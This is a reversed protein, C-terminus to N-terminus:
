ARRPKDRQGYDGEDWSEAQRHVSGKRRALSNIGGGMIRDKRDLASSAPMSYYFWTSLTRSMLPHSIKLKKDYICQLM